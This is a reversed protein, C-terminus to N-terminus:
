LLINKRLKFLNPLRDVRLGQLALQKEL